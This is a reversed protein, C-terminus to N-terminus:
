GLAAPRAAPRPHTLGRTLLALLVAAVGLLGLGYGDDVDTVVTLPLGGAMSVLVVALVAAGGLVLALRTRGRRRVGVVLSSLGLTGALLPGGLIAVYAGFTLVLIVPYLAVFAWGDPWLDKPDVMGGTRALRGPVDFLFYRAPVAILYSLVPWGLGVLLVRSLVLLTAPAGVVTEPATLGGRRAAGRLAPLTWAAAFLYRRRAAATSDALELLDGTWEARQRERFGAPLLGALVTLAIREGRTVM